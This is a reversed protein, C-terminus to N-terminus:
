FILIQSDIDFIVDIKIFDNFKLFSFAKGFLAM